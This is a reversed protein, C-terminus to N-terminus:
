AGLGSGGFHLRRRHHGRPDVRPHRARTATPRNASARGLEEGAHEGDGDGQGALGLQVCAALAPGLDFDDDGAVSATAKHVQALMATMRESTPAPAPAPAAAEAMRRGMGSPCCGRSKYAFPVNLEDGCKRCATRMFGKEFDGCGGLGELEAKVFEPLPGQGSEELRAVFGPLHRRVLV